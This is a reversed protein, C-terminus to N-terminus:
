HLNRVTESFVMGTYTGCENDYALPTGNFCQSRILSILYQM